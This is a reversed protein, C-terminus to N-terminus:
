PIILQLGTLYRGEPFNLTVPHDPAQGLCRVIRADRGADRVADGVVKGFLEPTM